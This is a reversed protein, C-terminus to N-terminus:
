PIPAQKPEEAWARTGTPCLGEVLVGGCNSIGEGSIAILNNKSRSPFSLAWLGNYLKELSLCPGACLQFLLSMVHCCLTWVPCGRLAEPQCCQVAVWWSTNEGANIECGMLHRFINAKPSAAETDGWPLPSKREGLAPM